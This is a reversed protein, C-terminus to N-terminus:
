ILIKGLFKTQMYETELCSFPNRMAELYAELEPINGLTGLATSYKKVMEYIDEVAFSFMQQIQHIIFSLASQTLQHREKANLLLLAASRHLRDSTCLCDQMLSPDVIEGEDNVEATEMYDVPLVDADTTESPGESPSLSTNVTREEPACFGSCLLTKRAEDEFDMGKHKRLLHSNYSSYCRFTQCCGVVICKRLFNPENSHSVFYHRNLERWTSTLYSCNSCHFCPSHLVTAM